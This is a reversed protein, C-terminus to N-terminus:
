WERAPDDRKVVDYGCRRLSEQLFALGVNSGLWQIVTATIIRDRETIAGVPYRKYNCGCPDFVRVAGEADRSCEQSCLSQLIDHYELEQDWQDAFAVERPNHENLRHAHIGPKHRSM